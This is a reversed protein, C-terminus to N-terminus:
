AVERERTRRKPKPAAKAAAEAERAESTKRRPGENVTTAEHERWRRIEAVTYKVTGRFYTPNPGKTPKEESASLRWFKLTHSSFGTAASAEIESLAISDSYSDFEARVRRIAEARSELKQTM